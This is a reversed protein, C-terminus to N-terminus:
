KKIVYYHKIYILSYVVRDSIKLSIKIPNLKHKWEKREQYYCLEPINVSLKKM